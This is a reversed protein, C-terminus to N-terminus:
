DEVGNKAIDLAENVGGTNALIRDLMEQEEKKRKSIEELELM